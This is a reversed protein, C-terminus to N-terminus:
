GKGFTLHVPVLGLNDRDLSEDRAIKPAGILRGDLAYSWAHYVCQLRSRHQRM